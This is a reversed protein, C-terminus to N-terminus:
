LESEDYEVDAEMQSDSTVAKETNDNTINLHSMSMYLEHTKTNTLAQSRKSIKM